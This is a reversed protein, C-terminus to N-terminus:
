AKSHLLSALITCKAYRLLLNSLLLSALLRFFGVLMASYYAEPSTEVCNPDTTGNTSNGPVSFIM